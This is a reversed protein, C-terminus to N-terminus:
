TSCIVTFSYAVQTQGSTLEIKMYRLGAPIEICRGSSILVQWDYAQAVLTNITVYQVRTFTLGSEAAGHIYATTNSAILPTQLYCRRWTEPGLDYVPTLTGLSAMTQTFYRTTGYDSM